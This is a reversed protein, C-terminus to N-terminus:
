TGSEAGIVRRTFPRIDPCLHNGERLEGGQRNRDLHDGVLRLIRAGPMDTLPNWKKTPCAITAKMTIKAMGATM